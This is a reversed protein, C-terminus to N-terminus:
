FGEPPAELWPSFQVGNSVADGRGRPNQEPHHPGSPDGWWNLRADFEAEDDNELGFESNGLIENFQLTNEASGEGIVVGLRHGRIENGWVTNKSSRILQLGLPHPVPEKPDSGLLVNGELLNEQSEILQLAPFSSMPNVVTNDRLTNRRAGQLIMGRGEWTNGLVTNENSSYLNLGTGENGQLLNRHSNSLWIGVFNLGVDNDILRNEHSETLDIGAGDANLAANRVLLNRSSRLLRIASGGGGTSTTNGELTNGESDILEVAPFGYFVTNASLRNWHSRELRIGVSFRGSLLNDRIYAGQSELLLIGQPAASSPFESAYITNAEVTARSTQALRIATEGEGLAFVNRALRVSSTGEVAIHTSGSQVLFGTFIVDDGMITVVAEAGGGDVVAIGRSSRLTLDPTPIHLAELYPGSRADVEITDGPDAADLAAQISAFDCGQACVTLTQRTSGAGGGYGAAPILLALAVGLGLLRPTRM